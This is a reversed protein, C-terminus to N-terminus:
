LEDDSREFLPSSGEHVGAATEITDSFEDSSENSPEVAFESSNELNELNESNLSLAPSHEIEHTILNTTEDEKNEQDEITELLAEKEKDSDSDSLALTDRQKGLVMKTPSVQSKQKVNLKENQM